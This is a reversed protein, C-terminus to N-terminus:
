SQTYIYTNSGFVYVRMKFIRSRTMTGKNLAGEKPLYIFTCMCLRTNDNMWIVKTINILVSYFIINPLLTFVINYYSRLFRRYYSHLHTNYM